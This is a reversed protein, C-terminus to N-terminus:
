RRAAQEDLWTAVEKVYDGFWVMHEALDYEYNIGPLNAGYYV